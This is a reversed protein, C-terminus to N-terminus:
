FKYVNEETYGLEKLLGSVVGQDKPSVKEGSIMKMMGPPGCVLVMANGQPLHSKLMHKDIYGVGGKWSKAAAADVTDVVYYVTFNKHHAALTDVRDKLMIENANVNAYILSIPKKYGKKSLLEEAIQLMPTIGTGGAVMGVADKSTLQDIPLKVIPGKFELTDGTQLSAMYPTLKGTPYVKFALDLEKADPASVQFLIIHIFSYQMLLVHKIKYSYTHTFLLQCHDNDRTRVPTYPRIVFARTGDDKVSGVPARVLLCSAVPLPTQQPVNFRYLHTPREGDTLQVKDILKLPVWADPDMAESPASSYALFSSAIAAAAAAATCSVINTRTTHQTFRRALQSLM